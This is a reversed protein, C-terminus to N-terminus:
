VIHNHTVRFHCLQFQHVRRGVDCRLLIEVRQPESERQEEGLPCLPSNILHPVLSGEVLLFEVFQAALVQARGILCELCVIHAMYDEVGVGENLSQGGSAAVVLNPGVEERAVITQADDVLYQALVLFDEGRMGRWLHRLVHDIGDGAVGLGHVALRIETEMKEGVNVLIIVLEHVTGDGGSGVVDDSLVAM